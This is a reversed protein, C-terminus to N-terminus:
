DGADHRDEHRRSMALRRRLEADVQDPTFEPNQARIGSRSISCAYDFLEAGAWFRQAFTMARAQEVAEQRFDAIPIMPSEMQGSYRRPRVTAWLWDALKTATM